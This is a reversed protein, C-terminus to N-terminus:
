SSAQDAGIVILYDSEFLYTGDDKVVKAGLEQAIMKAESERSDKKYIVISEPYDFSDANGTNIREYGMDLLKKRAEEIGGERGNGNRLRITTAKNVKYTNGSSEGGASSLITGTSLDVEDSEVPPLGAEMRKMMDKWVAKDLIEYWGGDRYESTTPAVATYIDEEADLGRMSQAIGVIAAVDLDTTVYESLASVSSGMSFADASLIKQAIAALVLRQNAARYLDGAGYDDYTHRSRCLILAQEGSLTQEGAELSGGADEDNIAIPVDVEVGGLADVVGAFGDFDIEAYHSIPVGALKSVTQVALSPGGLALAANIKQQGYQPIDVLTDRPISIIAAKGAQPDVRALMMSDSRYASSDLGEDAEREASGDTGLLLLYFPDSPTDIPSLVSLLADDVKNQLNKNITYLYAFAAGAGILCVCLLAVLSGIIVKRRKRKKRSTARVADDMGAPEGVYSQRTHGDKRKFREYEADEASQFPSAPQESQSQEYALVDDQKRRRKVSSKRQVGRRISASSASSPTSMPQDDEQVKEVLHEASVAHRAHASRASVEDSRSVKRVGSTTSALQVHRVKRSHRPM